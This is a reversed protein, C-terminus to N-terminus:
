DGPQTYGMRLEIVWEELLIGLRDTAHRGVKSVHRTRPPEPLPRAVRHHGGVLLTPPVHRPMDHLQKM